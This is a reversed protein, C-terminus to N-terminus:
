VKWFTTNPQRYAFVSLAENVIAVDDDDVLGSDIFKSSVSLVTQESLICSSLKKDAIMQMRRNERAVTEVDVEDNTENMRNWESIENVIESVNFKFSILEYSQACDAAAVNLEEAM